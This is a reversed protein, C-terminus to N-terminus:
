RVLDEPSFRITIERFYKDFLQRELEKLESFPAANEIAQKVSLDYAESGSSKIIRVGLLDGFPSLRIRVVAEMNNRASLPRTWRYSILSKFLATYKAVQQQDHEAQVGAMMEQEIRERELRELMEQKRRRDEALQKQREQEKKEKIRRAEEEKRLKEQREKERQEKERQQEKKLALEKQKEQRQQELKKKRNLEAKRRAEEQRKKELAQQRAKQDVKPRPKPAAKPKERPMEVLSAELHVPPAIPKSSHREWGVLAIVLLVGHLVLSLLVSFSYGHIATACVQQWRRKMSKM